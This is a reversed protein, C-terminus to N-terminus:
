GSKEKPKSPGSLIAVLALLTLVIIALVGLLAFIQIPEPKKKGAWIDVVEKQLLAIVKKVESTLSPPGPVPVGEV